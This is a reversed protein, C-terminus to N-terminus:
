KTKGIVLCLGPTDAPKETTVPSWPPLGAAKTIRQAVRIAETRTKVKVRNYDFVVLVRGNNKYHTCESMPSRAVTRIENDEEIM